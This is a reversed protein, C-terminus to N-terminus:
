SRWGSLLLGLLGARLAPVFLMVANVAALAVFLNRIAVRGARHRDNAGLLALLLGLLPFLLVATATVSLLASDKDMRPRLWEPVTPVRVSPVRRARADLRARHADLDKGCVACGAAFPSVPERCDPCRRAPTM